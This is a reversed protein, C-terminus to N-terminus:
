DTQELIGVLSTVPLKGEETLFSITVCKESKSLTRSQHGVDVMPGNNGTQSGEHENLELSSMSQSSTSDCRSASASLPKGINHM